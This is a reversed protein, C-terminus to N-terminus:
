PLAPGKALPTCLDPSAGPSQKIPHGGGLNQYQTTACPPRWIWTQMNMHRWIWTQLGVNQRLKNACCAYEPVGSCRYPHLGMALYPNQSSVGWVFSWAGRISNHLV